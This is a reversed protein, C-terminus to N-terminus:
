QTHLNHKKLNKKHIYYNVLNLYKKKKGKEMLFEIYSPDNEYIFGYTKGDHKKGKNNFITNKNSITKMQESLDNREFKKICESGIPNMISNTKSNYITYLHKIHKKGCVCQDGEEKWDYDYVCWEFKADEFTKSESNELIKEILM